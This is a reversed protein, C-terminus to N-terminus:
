KSENTNEESTEHVEIKQWLGQYSFCQWAWKLWTLLAFALWLSWLLMLGRYFWMSVSVVSATPLIEGSQDAYWHLLMANSGNGQIQMDPHGLLGTGVASLLGVLAAITLCVLGVQVTNFKHPELLVGQQKRWALAFLWGVVIMAVGIPAQSLGIGLLVWQWTKLPTRQSYGLGMAVLVVVVLVGWFLVAPGLRPGALALTWRSLPMAVEIDSNVSAQGLNVQPTQWITSMTQVTQWHIVMAQEGPTLPLEVLRERQEIPQSVGNISVLGLVAQPPLTLAYQGAQSSRIRLDLTVDHVRKGPKIYLRSHEITMTQGTVALPQSVKIQVQETPWPQWQPFWVGARNQHHVSPIGQVSVHWMPSVDLQWHETWDQTDAATLTIQDGPPLLSQWRLVQQNAALQVNAYGDAVRIGDTLVAEKDLLPIHLAIAQGTDSVRRVETEVRWELGLHLTRTLTVFAPLHSPQLINMTSADDAIREFHLVDEMRGDDYLGQIRWDNAQVTAHSPKMPLALAMNRVPLMTGSLQIRHIGAPVDLWLGKQVGHAVPHPKGDVMVQQPMWGDLTGPIPIAVHESAHVEMMIRLTNSQVALKMRAVHACQPLCADPKLLRKELDHLLRADPFAEASAHNAYPFLLILLLLTMMMPQAGRILRRGQLTFGALRVALLLVLLVSLVKMAATFPPSMYLLDLRQGAEVPGNWRVAVSSWQWEPLGPGTQVKAHPDIVPREYLSFSDERQPVMKKMAQRPMAALSPASAGVMAQDDTMMRETMDASYTAVAPRELQPYIATRVTEVMYPLTIAALVLLAGYRFLSAAHHLRGQTAVQLLAVAAILTLWIYQPASVEHWSLTLCLLTVLGWPVGFLRYMALAAILVLFIDLLTWQELWSARGVSDAGSAALLRWGPPLHLTASVQNFHDDWGPIPVSGRDGHYRGDAQLTLNGQRVEVGQAGQAQLRTVLQAEGNVVARGLTMEPAMNLRWAQRMQGSIKDHFTYAQGDFDLWLDRALSLTNASPEPDGRQKTTLIFTDDTTVRYTPLQQWEAPLTTQRPDLSPVGSIDVQRLSPRADFVWVEANPMDSEPVNLSAIAHQFRATVDVQWHGPRVQMRVMGDAELRIPLSSKIQLPMADALLVPGFHIERAKGFVQLDLRTVVRMPVEDIIRRFVQLQLRDEEAHASPAANENLWLRGQAERHPFPVPRGNLQLRLLGTAVPTALANPPTTWLFRGQITHRGKSLRISPQKNALVVTAAVGDVTVDQPWNRAEGPLAIPSDAYLTWQQSFSGGAGDLTLNLTDPWACYRAKSNNFPTPCDHDKHSDLVWPVWPALADPV